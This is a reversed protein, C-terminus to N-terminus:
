AIGLARATQPGVIGDVQLGRSRQFDAVVQATKPGYREDGPTLGVGFGARALAAKIAVVRPGSDGSRTLVDTAPTDRGPYQVGPILGGALWASPRGAAFIGVGARTSRAEATRGDGLSVAVHGARFLLAGATAIADDVSIPTCHQRQAASGDPVRPSVVLEACTQEVLESCDLPKGRDGPKTEAGYRYSAAARAILAARNAVDNGTTM